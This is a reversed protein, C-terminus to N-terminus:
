KHLHGSLEASYQSGVPPFGEGKDPLSPSPPLSFSYTSSFSFLTLLLSLTHQTHTVTHVGSLISHISEEQRSVRWLLTCCAAGMSTCYDAQQSLQQQLDNVECQSLSNLSKMHRINVTYMVFRQLLSKRHTLSLTHTIFCSCLSYLIFRNKRNLNPRSPSM